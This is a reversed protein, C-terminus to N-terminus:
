ESTTGNKNFKARGHADKIEYNLQSLLMRCEMLKARMTSDDHRRSIVALRDAYGHFLSAVRRLTYLSTIPVEIRVAKGLVQLDYETLGDMEDQSARRHLEGDVTGVM